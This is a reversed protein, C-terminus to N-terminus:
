FDKLDLDIRNPSAATKEPISATHIIADPTEEVSILERHLVNTHSPAFGKEPTRDVKFFQINQLLERAQESLEQATSATQEAASSNQQIVEDLGRIAINIQEAGNSQERSAASIEQILDTTKKIEPVLETLMKGAIEAIEVSESSLESIDGAALQSRSALKGVEAAVVAFGKGHEGARAAEISANLSLMNTQRAIEEIITIKKSIKQMAEVARLVSKGSSEANEAVKLAIVETRAANDANQHISASMEEMASSVEEASAAQEVAGSSIQTSASTLQEAGTSVQAATQQAATITTRMAHIMQALHRGMEGFEDESDISSEVNLDGQSMRQAITSSERVPNVIGLTLIIGFILSALLCGIITIIASTTVNRSQQVSEQYKSEAGELFVGTLNDMATRVTSFHEAYKGNYLAEANEFSRSSINSLLTHTDKSFNDYDTHFAEFDDTKRVGSEEWLKEAKVFRDRVQGLNDKVDAVLDPNPKDAAKQNLLEAMALRSQYADRDAEILYDVSLLNTKYMVAVEDNIVSIRSQIYLLGGIFLLVITSLVLIIKYKVKLNKFFKM